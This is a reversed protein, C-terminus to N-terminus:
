AAQPRSPALIFGESNREPSSDPKLNEIWGYAGMFIGKPKKSRMAELRKFALSTFWADLRHSFLDLTSNFLWNVDQTETQIVFSNLIDHYTDDGIGKIEGIQRVETFKKNPLEARKDIIKQAQKLTVGRAKPGEKIYGPDDKIRNVIEEPSSVTNFFKLLLGYDINTFSYIIDHLTDIGLGNIKLLDKPLIIKGGQKKRFELIKVAIKELVGHAAPQKRRFFPDDIIRGAIIKPDDVTNLFELVSINKLFNISDKIRAQEEPQNFTLLLSLRAFYDFDINIDDSKNWAFLKLLKSDLIKNYPLGTLEALQSAYSEQRLKAKDFWQKAWYNIGTGIILKGNDSGGPFSIDYLYTGVAVENGSSNKLDWVWDGPGIGKEVVVIDGSVTAIIMQSGAELNTFTIKDPKKNGFESEEGFLSNKFAILIWDQLTDSLIPRAKIKYSVPEMSLISMLSQDPDSDGAMRPVRSENSSMKLWMDFLNILIKHLERDFDEWNTNYIDDESSEKWGRPNEASYPKVSTVPLIGYPQTDIRISPLHGLARVAYIFHKQADNLIGSGDIGLLDTLFFKGAAPWICYNMEETYGLTKSGSNAIHRFIEIDKDFGLARGLLYAFNWHHTEFEDYSPQGDVEVDSYFSPPGGIEVKYTEECDDRSESYGSQLDGTNNTPTHLECFAMGSSYHHNNILERLRRDEEDPDTGGIGVVILKDFGEDMDTQSLGEFRIAMGNKEAEDFDIIWHKSSTFLDGDPTEGDIINLDSPIPDGLKKLVLDNGRFACALFRKPMAQLGTEAIIDTTNPRRNDSEGGDELYRYIYSARESGFESALRRWANKIKEEPEEFDDADPENPANIIDRFEQGAILERETIGQIHSNLCIQDPYIRIYLDNGIFRTELRLPLLLFPFDTSHIENGDVM